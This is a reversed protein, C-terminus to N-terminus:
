VDTLHFYKTQDIIKLIFSKRIPGQIIGALQKPQIKSIVTGNEKYYISFCTEISYQPKIGASIAALNVDVIM